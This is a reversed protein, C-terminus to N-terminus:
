RTENPMAKLAPQLELSPLAPRRDKGHFFLAVTGPGVHSGTCLDYYEVIIDKVGYKRLLDALYNADEECDGHCIAVTQNLDSAREKFANFLAALAKKRGREKGYFVIKTNASGDARLVPKINLLTGAIALTASIRGTKKLYKLDGVTLYSNIKYINEDLWAVCAEISEGLDRLAAVKLALLGEGMSANQSDIIFIKRDPFEKKLAAGAEKAQRNTGSIGSSITFLIVDKGAELAPRMAEEFILSTLLSTKIDAGARMEDYFAKATEVFPVGEEYCLREEGNVTFSYSIVKIGYEKLMSDPINAGSDVIIEFDGNMGVEKLTKQERGRPTRRMERSVNM